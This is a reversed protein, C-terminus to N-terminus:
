VEEEEEDELIEEIEEDTGMESEEEDIVEKVEDKAEKTINYGHEPTINTTTEGQEDKIPKQNGKKQTGGERYPQNFCYKLLWPAEQLNLIPANNLKKSVTKWLLNIKRIMDDRQQELQTRLHSLRKEQHSDFDGLAKEHKM